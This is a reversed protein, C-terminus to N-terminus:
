TVALTDPYTNPTANTTTIAHTDATAEIVTCTIDALCFGFGHATSQNGAAKARQTCVDVSAWM